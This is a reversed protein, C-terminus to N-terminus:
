GQRKVGENPVNVSRLSLRGNTFIINGSQESFLSRVRLIQPAQPRADSDKTWISSSKFAKTTIKHGMLLEMDLELLPLQRGSRSM